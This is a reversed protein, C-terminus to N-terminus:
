ASGRLPKPKFSSNPPLLRSAAWTLLPLTAIFKAYDITRSMLGVTDAPPLWTPTTVWFYLSPVVLGLLAVALAFRLPHEPSLLSIAVAFPVSVVLLGGTHTLQLWSYVALTGEHTPLWWTPTPGSFVHAGLGVAWYYLYAAVAVLCAVKLRQSLM